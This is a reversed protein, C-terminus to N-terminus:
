RCCATPLLSLPDLYDEGRRLGPRNGGSPSGPAASSAGDRPRGAGQGTAEPPPLRRCTSTSLMARGPPKSAAGSGLRPGVRRRPQRRCGTSSRGLVHRPRGLPAGLDDLAGPDRRRDSRGHARPETRGVSDTPVGPGVDRDDLRSLGPALEGEKARRAQTPRDSPPVREFGVLAPRGHDLRVLDDPRDRPREVQEDPEEADTVQLGIETGVQLGAKTPQGLDGLPPTWCCRHVGSTGVRGTEQRQVGPGRSPTDATM